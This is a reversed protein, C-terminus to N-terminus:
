DGWGFRFIAYLAYFADKLRIKKGEAFGRPVYRVPTETFRFGRRALKATVEPEFGFRDQTLHISLIADRSFAKYGTEMDSLRGGTTRNSLFTLGRNALAQWWAGAFRDYGAFRSGYVVDANGQIIPKILEPIDRPDYELDADQVLIVAGRAESLAMRIAAGKGGNREKFVLRVGPASQWLELVSRTGDTSADDVIVIEKPVPCAMLRSLVQGITAEENYVPVIVTLLFGAPIEFDLPEGDITLERAIETQLSDIQELTHELRELTSLRDELPALGSAAEKQRVQAVLTQNLQSM